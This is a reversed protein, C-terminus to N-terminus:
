GARTHASIVIRLGATSVIGDLLLLGQREAYQHPDFIVSGNQSNDGTGPYSAQVTTPGGFEEQGTTVDLAHIRQFYTSSNKSMAVVYITGHPGTKLDIM